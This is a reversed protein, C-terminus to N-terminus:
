NILLRNQLLLSILNKASKILLCYIYLLHQTTADRTDRSSRSGNLRLPPTPTLGRRTDPSSAAYNTYPRMAMTSPRLPTARDGAHRVRHRVRHRTTDANRQSQEATNPCPPTLSLYYTHFHLAATSRSPFSGAQEVVDFVSMPTVVMIDSYRLTVTPRSTYFRRSQVMRDGPLHQCIASRSSSCNPM